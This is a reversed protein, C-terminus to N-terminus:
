KAGRGRFRGQEKYRSDANFGGRNKGGGYGGWSGKGKHNGKSEVIRQGAAGVHAKVDYGNIASPVFQTHTWNVRLGLHTPFSGIDVLTVSEPQFPAWAEDWPLLGRPDFEGGHEWFNSLTAAMAQGSLAAGEIGPAVCFDGCWGLGVDADFLCGRSNPPTNTPLADEWHNIRNIIPRHKSLSAIGLTRAFADFMQKQASARYGKPNTNFEREAFVATSILTWHEPGPTGLTGSQQPRKSNNAIFSLCEEGYVHAATFNTPLPDGEFSVQIPILQNHEVRRLCQLMRECTGGGSLLFPDTLVHQAFGGIVFDFPGLKSGGNTTLHWGQAGKSLHKVKMGENPFGSIHEITGEFDAATDEIIRTLMPGMGGNGVWLREGSHAVFGEPCIKGIEGDPLASLFGLAEWRAVEQRFSADTSTFYQCGYDFFPKGPQPPTQNRPGMQTTLKGRSTCLSIRANRVASGGTTEGRAMRALSRACMVAAMGTGVIAIRLGVGGNSVQTTEAAASVVDTAVVKAHKAHWRRGGSAM